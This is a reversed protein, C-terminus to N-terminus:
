PLSAISTLTALAISSWDHVIKSRIEGIDDGLHPLQEFALLSGELGKSPFDDRVVARGHAVLGEPLGLLPFRIEPLQFRM